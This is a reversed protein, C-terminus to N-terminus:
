ETLDGIRGLLQKSEAIAERSGEVLEDAGGFITALRLLRNKEPGSAYGALIRLQKALEPKTLRTQDLM